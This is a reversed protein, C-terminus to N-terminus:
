RVAVTIAAWDASSDLTGSVDTAGAPLQAEIVEVGATSEGDGLAEGRVIMGTRPVLVENKHGFMALVLAPTSLELTVSPATSGSGGCTTDSAGVNNASAIKAFPTASAGSYRLVVIAAADPATDFTASVVDNGTPVGRATWVDLLIKDATSCQQSVRTWSLGMGTVATLASSEDRNQDIVAIYLQDAIATIATSTSVVLQGSSTSAGAQTEEWRLAAVDADAGPDAGDDGLQGHTFGCGAGVAILILGASGIDRM